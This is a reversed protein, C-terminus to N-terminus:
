FVCLKNGGINLECKCQIIAQKYDKSKLKKRVREKSLIELTDKMKKLHLYKGFTLM